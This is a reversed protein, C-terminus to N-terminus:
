VQLVDPDLPHPLLFGDQRRFIAWLRKRTTVEPAWSPEQLLVPPQHSQKLRGASLM